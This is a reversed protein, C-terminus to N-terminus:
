YELGERLGLPKDLIEKLIIASRLNDPQRLLSYVHGYAPSKKTVPIEKKGPVKKVVPEMKQKAPKPPQQVPKRQRRQQGPTYRHYQTQQTPVSLPDRKMNLQRRMDVMKQQIVQQQRDWQTIVKQKLQGTKPQTQRSPIAQPPQQPRQPVQQPTKGVQREYIQQRRKMVAKKLESESKEDSEKTNKKGLSKAIAAIIYIGFILVPGLIEFFNSGNACLGHCIFGVMGTCENM